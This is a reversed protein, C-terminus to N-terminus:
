KMEMTRIYQGTLYLRLFVKVYRAVARRVKKKGQTTLILQTQM